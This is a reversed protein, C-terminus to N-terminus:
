CVPNLHLFLISLVCNVSEKVMSLLVCGQEWIYLMNEKELLIMMTIPVGPLGCPFRDLWFAKISSQSWLLSDFHEALM